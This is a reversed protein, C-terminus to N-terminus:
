KHQQQEFMEFERQKDRFRIIAYPTGKSSKKEQISM